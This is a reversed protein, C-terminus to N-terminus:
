PLFGRMKLEEELKMRDPAVFIDGGIDLTPRISRGNNWAAIRREAAPDEDVDVYQFPAQMEELKQLMRQTHPCWNSGYVIIKQEM